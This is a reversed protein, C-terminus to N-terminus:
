QKFLYHLLCELFLALFCCTNLVAFLVLTGSMSILTIQEVKFRGVITEYQPIDTCIRNMNAYQSRAKLMESVIKVNNAHLNIARNFM